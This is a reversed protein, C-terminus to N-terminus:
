LIVLKSVICFVVNIVFIGAIVAAPNMIVHCVFFLKRIRLGHKGDFAAAHLLLLLM